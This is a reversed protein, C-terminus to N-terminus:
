ESYGGNCEKTKLGCDGGEIWEGKLGQYENAYINGNDCLWYKYKEWMMCDSAICSTAPIERNLVVEHSHVMPCRKNKAEEAKM